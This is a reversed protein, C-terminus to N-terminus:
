LRVFAIATLKAFFCLGFVPEIAALRTCYCLARVRWCFILRYDLLAGVEMVVRSWCALKSAVAVGDSREFSPAVDFRGNPRGAAVFFNLDTESDCARPGPTFAAPLNLLM